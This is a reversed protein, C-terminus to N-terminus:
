SRVLAMVAGADDCRDLSWVADALAAPDCTSRGYAALERLKQELDSDSLPLTASGRAHEVRRAIQAGGAFHLTVTASEVACTADDVFRVKERLPRLAADRACEDSFQALGAKRRTLVVAAAHQASVQAERGSEPHTRDTRERLLPHGAIEIHEIAGADIAEDQVLELCADIVPSLVIGTPYLKYTNSALEWTNGLDATLCAEDWENGTVRLFGYRGELPAEPGFVGEAAFTAAVIGNRAANGVSISKAMTGLTELLGGAQASANGLTWTMRRSDLALVKAIAAAAGFVGCTSTIPWGRRYHGPSVANGIRCEAEVGLIFALLLDRGSLPTTEAWAFLAPAVPATPHIITRVHTDDFDFVNASAANLFASDLVGAREGRGIVTAASGSSFRKLADAAAETAADRCGGLACAFYNILSRKAEHRVNQPVDDWTTDCLFRALRATSRTATM